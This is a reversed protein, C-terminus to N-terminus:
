LNGIKFSGRGGQATSSTSHLVIICTYIYICVYNTLILFIYIYICEQDNKFYITGLGKTHQFVVGLKSIIDVPKRYKKPYVKWPAAGFLQFGSTKDTETQAQVGSSTMDVACRLAQPLKEVWFVSPTSQSICKDNVTKVRTANTLFVFCVVWSELNLLTHTWRVVLAFICTDKRYGESLKIFDHFM